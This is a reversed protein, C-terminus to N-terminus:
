VLDVVLICCIIWCICWMVGLSLVVVVLRVVLFM